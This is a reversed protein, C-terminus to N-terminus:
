GVEAQGDVIINLRSGTPALAFLDSMTRNNKRFELYMPYSFTSLVGKESYGYDSESNTMDNPGFGRLRVLTEPHSVPVTKLLLSNLASFIVTNAGIGLGLSLVVVATWGKNQRLMRFAQRLDQLM